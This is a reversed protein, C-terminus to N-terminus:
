QKKVYKKGNSGVRVQKANPKDIGEAKNKWYNLIQERTRKKFVGETFVAKSWDKLPIPTIKTILEPIYMRVGFDLRAKQLQMILMKYNFFQMEQTLPKDWSKLYLPKFIEFVREMIQYRIRPPYYHLNFGLVRKEGSDTTIINFFIACPMADYYELEEKTKPELYNMMILQGPLISTRQKTQCNEEIYKRSNINRRQVNNKYDKEARITKLLDWDKPPKPTASKKKPTASKEEPTAM